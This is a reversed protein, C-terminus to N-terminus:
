MAGILRLAEEATRVMPIHMRQLTKLQDEDRQRYKSKPNDVEILFHRFRFSVALDCPKSMQVVHAGVKRLADVIDRENQDRRVARRYLSVRWEGQM